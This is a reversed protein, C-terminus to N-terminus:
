RCLTLSPRHSLAPTLSFFRLIWCKVMRDSSTKVIKQVEGNSRTSRSGRHLIRPGDFCSPEFYSYIGRTSFGHRRPPRVGRHSHPDVGFRGPVFGSERSGFGYPRHNPGNSFRSPARSSLHPLFNIFEDHYSNRAYNV